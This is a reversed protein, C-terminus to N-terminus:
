KITYALWYKKILGLYDNENNASRKSSHTLRSIRLEYGEGINM